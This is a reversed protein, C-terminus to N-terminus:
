IYIFAGVKDNIPALLYFAKQSDAKIISDIHDLESKLFSHKKVCIDTELDNRLKDSSVKFGAEQLNRITKHFRNM